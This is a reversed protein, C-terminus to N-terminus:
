SVWAVNMCKELAKARHKPKDRLLIINAIWFATHNFQDIARKVHHLNRCKAKEEESLSVHRILDRPRITSFLAWDIRTLERAVEEDPLDMFFHWHVKGLSARPSAVTLGVHQQASELAKQPAHLSRSSSKGTSSTTSPTGSDRKMARSRKGDLCTDDAAVGSVAEGIPTPSVNQALFRTPHSEMIDTVSETADSCAWYTDDDESVVDLHLSIDKIAMSFQRQGTLASIFGIMKVRTRPHAFDGPYESVWRALVSLYRLQTTLRVAPPNIVLNVQEFRSIIACLLASPASFQRYLCLFTAVFKTDVKSTAQSLLRDILKDFAVGGGQDGYVSKEFGDENPNPTSEPVLDVTKNSSQTGSGNVIFDTSWKSSIPSVPEDSGLHVGPTAETPPYNEEHTRKDAKYGPQSGLRQTPSANLHNAEVCGVEGLSGMADVEVSVQEFDSQTRQHNSKSGQATSILSADSHNLESMARLRGPRSPLDFASSGGSRVTLM